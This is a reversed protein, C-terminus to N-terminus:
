EEPLIAFHMGDHGEIAEPNFGNIQLYVNKYEVFKEWCLIGIQFSKSEGDKLPLDFM